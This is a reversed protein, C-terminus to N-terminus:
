ARRRNIVAPALQVPTLILATFFAAALRGPTWAVLAQAAM